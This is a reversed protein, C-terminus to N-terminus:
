KIPTVLSWLLVIAEDQCVKQNLFSTTTTTAAALRARETSPTKHVKRKKKLISCAGAYLFRVTINKPPEASM